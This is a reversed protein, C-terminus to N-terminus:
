KLYAKILFHNLEGVRQPPFLYHKRLLSWEIGRPGAGPYNM